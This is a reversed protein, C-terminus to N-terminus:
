SCTMMLLTIMMIFVTSVVPAVLAVVSLDKEKALRNLVQSRDVIVCFHKLATAIKCECLSMTSLSDSTAIPLSKTSLRGFRRFLRPVREPESKGSTLFDIRFFREAFFQIM